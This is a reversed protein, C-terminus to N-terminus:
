YQLHGLPIDEGSFSLWPLKAVTLSIMGERAFDVTIITPNKIGTLENFTKPWEM